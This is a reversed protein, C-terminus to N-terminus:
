KLSFIQYRLPHDIPLFEDEYCAYLRGCAECRYLPCPQPIGPIWVARGDPCAGKCCGLLSVPRIRHLAYSSTRDFWDSFGNM